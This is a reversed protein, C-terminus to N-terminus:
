FQSVHIEIEPRRLWKCIGSRFIRNKSIIIYGLDVVQQMSYPRGALERIEVLDEITDFIITILEEIAYEILEVSDCQTRLQQPTIKRYICFLRLILTRIEPPAQGILM